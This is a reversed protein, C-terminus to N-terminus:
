GLPAEATNVPSRPDAIAAIVSAKRRNTVDRVSRPPSIEAPPEPPVASTVGAMRSRETPTGLTITDVM